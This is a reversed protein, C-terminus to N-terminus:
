LKCTKSFVVHDIAQAKLRKNALEVVKCYERKARRRVAMLRSGLDKKWAPTFSLVYLYQSQERADNITKYSKAKELKARIKKNIETIDKASEVDIGFKRKGGSIGYMRGKRSDIEKQMIRRLEKVSKDKPKLIVMRDHAKRTHSKIDAAPIRVRTRSM